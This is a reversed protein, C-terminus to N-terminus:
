APPEAAAPTLLETIKQSERAIAKLRRMVEARTPDDLTGGHGGPAAVAAPTKSAKKTQSKTATATASAM